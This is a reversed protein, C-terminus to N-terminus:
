FTINYKNQPGFSIAELEFQIRTRHKGEMRNQRREIRYGVYLIVSPISATIATKIIDQLEM